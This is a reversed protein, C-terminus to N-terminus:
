KAHQSLAQVLREFLRDAIIAALA